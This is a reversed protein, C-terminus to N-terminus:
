PGGDDERRCQHLLATAPQCCGRGRRSLQQDVVGAVAFLRADPVVRRNVDPQGLTLRRGSTADARSLGSLWSLREHCLRRLVQVGPDTLWRMGGRIPSAAERGAPKPKPKPKPMPKNRCLGMELLRGGLQSCGSDGLWGPTIDPAGAPPHSSMM